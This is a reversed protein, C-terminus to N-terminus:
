ARSQFVLRAAIKTYECPNCKGCCIPDVIVHVHAILHDVRKQTHLKRDVSSYCTSCTAVVVPYVLLNRHEFGPGQGLLPMDAWWLATIFCESLFIVNLGEVLCGTDDSVDISRFTVHGLQGFPAPCPKRELEREVGVIKNKSM